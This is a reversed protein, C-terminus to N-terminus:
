MSIREGRANKSLGPESGERRERDVYRFPIWEKSSLQVRKKTAKGSVGAWLIEKSLVGTASGM